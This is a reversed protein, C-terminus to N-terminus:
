KRMKKVFRLILAIIVIWLAINGITWLINIWNIAIM